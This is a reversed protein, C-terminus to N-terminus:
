PGPVLGEVYGISKPQSRYSLGETTIQGDRYGAGQLEMRSAFVM